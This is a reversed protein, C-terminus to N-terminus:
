LKNFLDNWQPNTKQILIIKSKRSGAKIRKEEEIAGNISDGCSYYVLRYLKYKSTFGEIKSSKHQQIRKKLDSTVGTYLTGNRKNTIIYVCGTM